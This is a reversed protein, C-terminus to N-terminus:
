PAPAEAPVPVSAEPATEASAPEAAEPMDAAVAGTTEVPLGVDGAPLGAEAAGEAAPLTEVVPATSASGFVESTQGEPSIFRSLVSLLIALLMFGVAIGSTIKNMTKEAGTAGIAESIGSSAGALSSLGGGKGSQLLIAAMLLMCVVVYVFLLLIMWWTLM